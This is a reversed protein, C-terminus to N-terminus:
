FYDNIVVDSQIYTSQSQGPTSLILNVAVPWLGWSCSECGDFSIFKLPDFTTLTALDNEAFHSGTSVYFRFLDPISQFIWVVTCIGYQLYQIFIIKSNFIIEENFPNCKKNYRLYDETISILFIRSVKEDYVALSQKSSNWM